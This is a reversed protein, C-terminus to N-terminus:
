KVASTDIASYFPSSTRTQEFGIRASARSALATEPTFGRVFPDDSAARYAPDMLDRLEYRRGQHEVFGLLAPARQLTQGQGGAMPWEVSSCAGLGLCLSARVIIRRRSLIM